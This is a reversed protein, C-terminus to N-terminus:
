RALCVCRALKPCRVTAAVRGNADEGTVGIVTAFFSPRGDDRIAFSSGFDTFTRGLAGRAEATCFGIENARCFENYRVLQDFKTARTPNPSRLPTFM